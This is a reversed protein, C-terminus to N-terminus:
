GLRDGSQSEGSFGAGPLSWVLRSVLDLFTWMVNMVISNLLTKVGTFEFANFSARNANLSSFRARHGQNILQNPKM